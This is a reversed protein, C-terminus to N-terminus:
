PLYWKPVPAGFVRNHHLFSWVAYAALGLPLALPNWLLGALAVAGYFSGTSYSAGLELWFTTVSWASAGFSINAGEILALTLTAVAVFLEEAELSHIPVFVILLDAGIVSAGLKQVPALPQTGDGSM